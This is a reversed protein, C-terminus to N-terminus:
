DVQAIPAHTLVSATGSVFTWLARPALWASSFSLCRDITPAGVAMRHESTWVHLCRWILGNPTECDARGQRVCDGQDEWELRVVCHAEDEQSHRGASRGRLFIFPSRLMRGYRVPVLEALRNRNSEKLIAIPDRGKAPRKWGAHRQRAVTDRAM